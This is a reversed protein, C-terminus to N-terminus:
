QLDHLRASWGVIPQEERRRLSIVAMGGLALLALAFGTLGPADASGTFPLTEPTTSTTVVLPLVAFRILGADWTDDVEGAALNIVETFGSTDVDSDVDDDAEPNQITFEQDNELGSFVLYYDGAELDDFWYLGKADTFDFGLLQKTDADYLDVVFGEVPSEWADQIGDGNTDEWVYDGIAGLLTPATTSTTGPPPPKYDTFTCTVDEAGMEFRVGNDVREVEVNCAIDILRWGAPVMETLTYSGEPYVDVWTHSGGAPLTVASGISDLGSLTFEFSGTQNALKEVTITPRDVENEFMCTIHEGPDLQLEVRYGFTGPLDLPDFEGPFRAEDAGTNNRCDLSVFEWGYALQAASIIEHISYGGPELASWTSESGTDIILDDALLGGPDYLRFRFSGQEAGVKAVTISGRNEEPLFCFSIHSLGAWGGSANDPAHLMEDGLSGAPYPYLNGNPGGKVFVGMIPFNSTWDFAQGNDTVYADWSVQRGSDPDTWSGLDTVPEVKYFEIWGSDLSGCTANGTIEIPEVSAAAAM